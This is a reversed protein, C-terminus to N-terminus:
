FLFFPAVVAAVSLAVSAISIGVKGVTDAAGEKEAAVAKPREPRMGTIQSRDLAQREEPELMELISGEETLDALDGAAADSGDDDAARVRQEGVLIGAALLGVILLGAAWGRVRRMPM